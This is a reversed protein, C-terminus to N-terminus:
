GFIHSHTGTRTLMLILEKQKKRYVLLWDPRIHCERYETYKGKLQHDNYNEPLPLDSRYLLNVATNIEDKLITNSKIRKYDKKYKTTYIIEYMRSANM